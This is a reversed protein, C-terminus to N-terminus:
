HKSKRRTARSARPSSNGLTETGEHTAMADLLAEVDGITLGDLQDYVKDTLILRLSDVLEGDSIKSVAEVPWDKSAPAQYEVGNWIFAFGHEGNAERRAARAADLDFAM